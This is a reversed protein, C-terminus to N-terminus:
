PKVSSVRSSPRSSLKMGPARSASLAPWSVPLEPKM